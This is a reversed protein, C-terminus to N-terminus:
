YVRWLARTEGQFVASVTVNSTNDSDQRPNDTRGDSWRVFLSGENPIATVSSGSTGYAIDQLLEGEVTGNLGASYTLIVNTAAVAEPSFATEVGDGNRARMAIQYQTASDLGILAINDWQTRFQWAPDDGLQGDLQVWQNSPLVRVAYETLVSNGDGGGSSIEISSATVAGTTPITPANALTHPAILTTRVSEGIANFATVQFPIQENASETEIHSTTGAALAVPAFLPTSGLGTYVYFGCEDASLDEWSFEIQSATAQFTVQGPPRPFSVHSRALRFGLYGFAFDPGQPLRFASRVLSSASNWGGGRTVRRLQSVSVPGLPDAEPSVDYYDADYWDHCWELINGSMDYAGVPSVAYFTYRNLGTFQHEGDYFGVPTVYPLATLKMPNSSGYNAYNSTMRSASTGYTFRRNGDWAAAREWEAETPLRYGDTFQTGTTAGDADVLEWSALDYAPTYGEMESLWNSFAVAGHWSVFYMPYQALSVTTGSNDTRIAPVFQEGEFVLPTQEHDIVVAIKPTVTGVYLDIEGAWLEGEATRLLGHAHAWDLVLAFDGITTEYKSIAYASLSVDHRPLSDEFTSESDSRGMVFSGAPVELLRTSLM